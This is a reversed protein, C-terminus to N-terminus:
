ASARKKRWALFAGVGAAGMALMSLSGPEPVSAITIPNGSNDYVFNGFTATVSPSTASTVGSVSVGIYGYDTQTPINPDTFFVGLYANSLNAFNGTASTNYSAMTKTAFANNYYPGPGVVDGAVLPAPNENGLFEVLYGSGGYSSVSLDASPGSSLSATFNVVDSSGATVTLSTQSLGTGITQNIPEIVIGAAADSATAAVLAGGAMAYAALKRDLGGQRRRERTSLSM